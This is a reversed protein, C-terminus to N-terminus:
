DKEAVIYLLPMKDKPDHIRERKVISFGSESIMNAFEDLNVKYFTPLRGGFLHYMAMVIKYKRSVGIGVITSILLGGPKLVRKMESLAKQPFMMNHLANNCIVIDFMDENLPLAYADEVSFEVNKIGMQKMKKKAEEIMPRSIDIGYVKSAREAVKLTVLGTGIAVDLVIDGKIQSIKDLLLSVYVKWTKEM